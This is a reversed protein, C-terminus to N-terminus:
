VDSMLHMYASSEKTVGEVGQKGMWVHIKGSIDCVYMDLSTPAILPLM